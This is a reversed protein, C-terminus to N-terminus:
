QSSLTFWNHMNQAHDIIISDDFMLVYDSYTFWYLTLGCLILAATWAAFEGQWRHRLLLILSISAMVSGGKFFILGPINGQQIVLAALPNMEHMGISQLYIITVHLDGISLMIVLGILLLVRRARAKGALRLHPSHTRIQNWQSMITTM